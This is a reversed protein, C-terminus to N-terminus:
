KMELYYKQNELLKRKEELTSVSLQKRVVGPNGTVVSGEPIYGRVVTGAGILCHDEIEAGPLILCSDGLWCGRGIKVPVESAYDNDYPISLCSQFNHNSTYITLRPGIITGDGIEVGGRCFLRAGPGIYVHEGIELRQLWSWGHLSIVRSTVCLKGGKRRIVFRPWCGLLSAIM